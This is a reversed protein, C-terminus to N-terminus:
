ILLQSNLVLSPKGNQQTSDVADSLHFNFSDNEDNQSTISIKKEFGNEMFYSKFADEPEGDYQTAPITVDEVVISFEADSELDSACALISGLRSNISSDGRRSRRRHSTSTIESLKALKNDLSIISSFDESDSGFDDGLVKKSTGETDKINKSPEALVSTDQRQAERVETAM